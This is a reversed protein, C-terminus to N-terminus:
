FPSVGAVAHGFRSHNPMLLALLCCFGAIQIQWIPIPLWESFLVILNFTLAVCITNQM